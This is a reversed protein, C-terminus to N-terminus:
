RKVVARWRDRDQGLHIWEVGGGGVLRELTWKSGMRGDVSQDKLHDKEKQSEWWFGTCTEGRESAHWM